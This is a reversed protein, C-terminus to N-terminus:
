YQTGSTASRTSVVPGHPSLDGVNPRESRQLILLEEESPYLGKEFHTQSEQGCLRLWCVIWPNTTHKIWLRLIGLLMADLLPGMESQLFYPLPGMPDSMTDCVVDDLTQWDWHSVAEIKGGTGVM